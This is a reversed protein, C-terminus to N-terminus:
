RDDDAREKNVADVALQADEMTHFTAVPRDDEYVHISYHQGVRWPPREDDGEEPREDRVEVALDRPDIGDVRAVADAVRSIEGHCIMDIARQQGGVSNTGLLQNWGHLWIAIGTDTYTQALAAVIQLLTVPRDATM